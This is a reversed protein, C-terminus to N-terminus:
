PELLTVSDTIVDFLPKLGEKQSKPGLFTLMSIGADTQIIIQKEYAIIATGAETILTLELEVVGIEVGLKNKTVGSSLIKASPLTTTIEDVNADVIMSLPMAAITPNQVMILNLNTISGQEYYVKDNLFAVLRLAQPDFNRMVRIAEAMNPNSNEMQSAMVTLDELTAPIVLWQKSIILSYGANYDTVRTDGNSLQEKVVGTPLPTPPLSPTPSPTITPTPTETAFIAAIPATAQCALVALLLVFLAVPFLIRPKM